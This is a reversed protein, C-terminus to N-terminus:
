PSSHGAVLNEPANWWMAALVWIVGLAGGLLAALSSNRVTGRPMPESPAVALSALSAYSTTRESYKIEAEKEALTQYTKWNLDRQSVLQKTLADETELAAKLTQVQRGLSSM